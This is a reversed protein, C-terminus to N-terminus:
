IPIYDTVLSDLVYITDIVTIVVNGTRGRRKGRNNGYDSYVWSVRLKLFKEIRSDSGSQIDYVIRELDIVIVVVFPRFFIM